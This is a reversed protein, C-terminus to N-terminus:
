EMKVFTRTRMVGDKADNLIVSYIGNRLNSITLMAIKGKRQISPLMFRGWSDYVQISTEYSFDTLDISVTNQAPNPFLSFNKDKIQLQNETTLLDITNVVTNTVIAPNIDFYIYATNEFTTGHALNAKQAIEFVVYGNSGLMDTASDPLNINNFVFWVVNNVLYTNSIPHSSGIVKLSQYDLAASLTDAISINIAEANGTNQFHVTYTMKQNNLIAGFAGTGEPQVLKENPDFSNRIITNCFARNNLTDDDGQFPLVSAYFDFVAGPTLISTTAIVDIHFIPSNYNINPINWFITDGNQLSPAVSCSSYNVGSDLVLFVNGSQSVCGDNMVDLYVHSPFGPRFVSTSVLVSLDFINQNPGNIKTDVNSICGRSDSAQVNFYGPQNSVVHTSTNIPSTNWLFSYPPSGQYANAFLEGNSTCTVDFLSDLCVYFNSCTDLSYKAFFLDYWGGFFPATPHNPSQPNLYAYGYYQGALYVTPLHSYDFYGYMSKSVKQAWIFNLNSDYKILYNSPTGGGFIKYGPGPDLDAVSQLNVPLYLNLLSDSEMIYCNKILSKANLFNGNSDIKLFYSSYNPDSFNFSLTDHLAIFDGDGRYYGLALITNQHDIEISNVENNDGSEFYDFWVYKGASDLKAIYSNPGDWMNSGMMTYYIATGDVYYLTTDIDYATSAEFSGGIIINQAGDVEFLRPREALHRAWIYNGNLDYKAIFPGSTFYNGFVTAVAPGPDFDVSDQCQGILYLHDFKDFHLECGYVTFNSQTEISKAWIFNGDNDYKAFFLNYLNSSGSMLLNQNPGPDLDITDRYTGTLYINNYADISLSYGYGTGKNTFRKFWKFKGLSDYKALIVNGAAPIVLQQVATDPDLDITDGFFACLFANGHKDFVTNGRDDSKSGIGFGWDMTLGINQSFVYCNFVFILLIVLKTKYFFSYPYTM